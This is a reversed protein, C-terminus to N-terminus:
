KEEKDAPHLGAKEALLDAIAKGIGESMLDDMVQIALSKYHEIKEDLEVCKECMADGTQGMVSVRSIACPESTFEPWSLAAFQSVERWRLFGNRNWEVLRQKLEPLKTTRTAM